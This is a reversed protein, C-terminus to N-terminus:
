QKEDEKKNVIITSMDVPIGRVSMIFLHVSRGTALIIGSIGEAVISLLIVVGCFYWFNIFATDFIHQILEM